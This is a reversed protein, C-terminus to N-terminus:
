HNGPHGLNAELPSGVGWGAGARLNGLRGRRSSQFHSEREILIWMKAGPIHPNAVKFGGNGLIELFGASPALLIDIQIGQSNM